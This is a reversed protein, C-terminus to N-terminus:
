CVEYTMNDPDINDQWIVQLLAVCLNSFESSIISRIVLNCNSFLM